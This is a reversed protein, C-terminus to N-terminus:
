IYQLRVCKCILLSENGSDLFTFLPKIREGVVGWGGKKEKM